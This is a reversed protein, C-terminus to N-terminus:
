PQYINPRHGLTAREECGQAPHNEDWQSATLTDTWTQFAAPMLNLETQLHKFLPQLRFASVSFIQFASVLRINLSQGQAKPMELM